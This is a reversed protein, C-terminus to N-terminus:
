ASVEQCGCHRVVGSVIDTGTVTIVQTGCVCQALWYNISRRPGETRHLVHLLHSRAGAFDDHPSMSRLSRAKVKPEPEPKAMPKTKEEAELKPGPKPSIYRVKRKSRLAAREQRDKEAPMMPGCARCYKKAGQSARVQTGCSQCTILRPAGAKKADLTTYQNRWFEPVHTM